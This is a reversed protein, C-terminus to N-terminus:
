FLTNIGGRPPHSLLVLMSFTAITSLLSPNLLLYCVQLPWLKIDMLSMVQPKYLLSVGGGEKVRGSVLKAVEKGLNPYGM